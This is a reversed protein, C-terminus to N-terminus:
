YRCFKIRCYNVGLFRTNNTYAAYAVTEAHNSDDDLDIWGAGTGLPLAILWNCIGGLLFVLAIKWGVIYGVGFLAASVGANVAFVAQNIFFGFGISESALHTAQFLKLGSGIGAAKLVLSASSGGTEGAKLVNACAVGEPFALPPDTELLL